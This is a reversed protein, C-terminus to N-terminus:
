RSPPGLRRCPSLCISPRVPSAERRPPRPALGTHRAIRELMRLGIEDADHFAFVFDAMGGQLAGPALQGQPTKISWGIRM